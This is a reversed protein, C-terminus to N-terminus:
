IFFLFIRYVVYAIAATCPIALYWMGFIRVLMKKNVYRVGRTLGVGVISGVIAMSTSAPIGLRSMTVMVLAATLQAVFASVPSLITIRKGVTEIVTSGWLVIGLSLAIGALIVAVTIASEEGAKYAYFIAALPGAANAVDNSGFSFSMAMAAEILLIKMSNDVLDIGRSSRIIRRWIVISIVVALLGISGAIAIAILLGRSTLSKLFSLLLPIFVAIFSCTPILVELGKRSTIARDVIRYLAGAMVMAIPPVLLWSIFIKILTYWNIFNLGLALGVGVLGGLVCAHVSMPIRLFSSILTWISSSLLVSIMVIAITDPELISSINVIRRMVTDTVYSGLLLAGILTMISALILAKRASIVGAGVATGVMNAANNSGNNWALFFATALGIALWPSWIMELVGSVDIGSKNHHLQQVLM